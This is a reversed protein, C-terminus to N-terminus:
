PVIITVKMKITIPKMPPKTMPSGAKDITQPIKPSTHVRKTTIINQQQLCCNSAAMTKSLTVPFKRLLLGLM